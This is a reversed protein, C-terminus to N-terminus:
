LKNAGSSEGNPSINQKFFLNIKRLKRQTKGNVMNKYEGLDYLNRNRRFAFITSM